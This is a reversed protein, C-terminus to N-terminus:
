ARAFRTVAFPALDYSTQRGLVLDAVARATAPALLVGHRYHGCAHYLGHHDGDPGLIPLGDLTGPRLGAWCDDFSADELAPALRLTRALIGQVAAGTVRKDFGVDEYTSGALLRGDRRPVLYVGRSYIACRFLPRPTTLLVMQGRVPYVPMPTPPPAVHPAWAGAANVVAGAHIKTGAADIGVARGRECRIGRVIVGTRLEVGMRAAAVAYAQTLRVNDIRHDDPFVYGGRVATTVGPELRRVEDADIRHVRLGAQRQWASRAGLAEEDADELTVYLIGDCQYEPDIGTEERLAAVVDPYLARSALGLALLPGAADCEAQPGLMGAAAGSAEGGPRGRDLLAVKAGAQALERAIACGIIGAGVIAVDPSSRVPSAPTTSTLPV